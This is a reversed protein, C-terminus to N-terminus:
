STSNQLKKWLQSPRFNAATNATAISTIFSHLDYKCNVSRKRVSEGRSHVRSKVDEVARELVMALWELRLTLLATALEREQQAVIDGTKAQLFLLAADGYERLAEYERKKADWRDAPKSKALTAKCQEITDRKKDAM